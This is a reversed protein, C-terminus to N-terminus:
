HGFQVAKTRRTAGDRATADEDASATEGDRKRMVFMPEDHQGASFSIGQAVLDYGFRLLFAVSVSPVTSLFARYGAQRAQDETHALLASGIGMYTFLPSVFLGTIEAVRDRGPSPQWGSTGVLQRDLWAGYLNSAALRDVYGPEALAAMFAEGAVPAVHPGIFTRFSSGHVYRVDSWDDVGIPMIQLLDNSRAAPGRPDRDGPMAHSTM